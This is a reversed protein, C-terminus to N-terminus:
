SRRSAAARRACSASCSRSRSTTTAGEPQRYRVTAEEGTRPQALTLTGSGMIFFRPEGAAHLPGALGLLIALVALGRGRMARVGGGAQGLRRPDPHTSILM